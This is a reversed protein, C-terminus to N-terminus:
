LIQNSMRMTLDELETLRNHLIKKQEECKQKAFGDMAAFIQQYFKGKYDPNPNSTIHETLGAKRLKEYFDQAKM